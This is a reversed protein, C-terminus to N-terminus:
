EIGDRVTRAVRAGALRDAYREAFVTRASERGDADVTFTADYDVATLVLPAPPAPAVGEPGDLAADDLVRDVKALPEEGDAIAALLGVVRRVLQRCFGGARLTCVLFPGDRALEVSLDRVTGQEDPTLNHFDHEGSLASAVAEAVEDDAGPAHLHYTYTRALADHTAHFGDPVDASAWARVAAPLESNFAAPSLWDPAEFADGRGAPAPVRLVAPRRLRDSLRAYV